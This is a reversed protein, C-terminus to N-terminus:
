LASQPLAKFPSVPHNRLKLSPDGSREWTTSISNCGPPHQYRRPKPAATERCSQESTPPTSSVWSLPMVSQKPHGDGCPESGGPHLATVVGPLPDGEERNAAQQDRPHQPFLDIYPPSTWWSSRSFLLSHTQQLVHLLQDSSLPTSSAPYGFAEQTKPIASPSHTIITGQSHM